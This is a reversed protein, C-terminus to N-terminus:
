TGPRKPTRKSFRTCRLACPGSSSLAAGRSGASVAVEYAAGCGPAATSTPRPAARGAGNVRADPLGKAYQALDGDVAVDDARAGVELDDDQGGLRPLSSAARIPRARAM